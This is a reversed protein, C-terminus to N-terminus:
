RYVYGIQVVGGRSVAERHVRKLLGLNVCPPKDIKVHKNARVAALAYPLAEFPDTEVCVM